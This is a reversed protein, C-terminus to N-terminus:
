ACKNGRNDPCEKLPCVASAALPLPNQLPDTTETIPPPKAFPSHFIPWCSITLLGILHKGNLM